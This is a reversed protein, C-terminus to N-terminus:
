FRERDYVGSRRVRARNAPVDGDVRGCAAIGCEDGCLVEDVYVPATRLASKSWTNALSTRSKRVGSAHEGCSEAPTDVVYNALQPQMRRWAANLCYIDRGGTLVIRGSRFVLLVVNTESSRYM